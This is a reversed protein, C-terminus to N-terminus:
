GRRAFVVDVGGGSQVAPRLHGLLLDGIPTGDSGFTVTVRGGGAQALTRAPTATNRRSNIAELIPRYQATSAANVVFEGNSLRAPISDSTATGPGRVMGGTPYGRVMGGDAYGVYGGQARGIGGTILNVGISIVRNQYARIFSNLASRAGATNATVNVNKNKPISNAANRVGFLRDALQRARDRTYGMQVATSIFKQRAQEMRQAVEAASRGSDRMAVAEAHATRALANLAAENARGKETSFGHAKGNEEISATAADVAAEYAATAERLTLTKGALADLSAKLENATQSALKMTGTMKNFEGLATATGDALFHTSAAVLGAGTQTSILNRQYESLQENGSILGGTLKDLGRGFSDINRAVIAIPGFRQFVEALKTLIAITHGGFTIVLGLADIFRGFTEPDSSRAIRAIADAIRGMLGPLEDGLEGLLPGLAATVDRIAPEFETLSEALSHSFETAVPALDDFSDELSPLLEDFAEGFFGASKTLTDEFPKSIEKIEHVAHKKLGTFAAEVKKSEVQGLVGVGILAGGVGLTIASGALTALWPLAALGGAVVAIGAGGSSGVTKGSRQAAVAIEKFASSGAEGLEPFRMRLQRVLANHEEVSGAAKLQALRQKVAALEAARAAQRHEEALEDQAAAAARAGAAQAALVKTLQNEAREQLRAAEAADIEGRELRQTADAAEKQFKELRRLASINRETQREQAKEAKELRALEKDFASAAAQAKKAAEDFGSPDGSIDVRLTRNDRRAM